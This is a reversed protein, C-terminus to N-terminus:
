FLTTGKCAECIKNGICASAFNRSCCLCKRTAPVDRSVIFEEDTIEEWANRVASRAVGAADAVHDSKPIHGTEMVLHQYAARCKATTEPRM